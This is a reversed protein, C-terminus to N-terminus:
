VLRLRWAAGRPRHGGRRRKPVYFCRELRQAKWFPSESFGAHFRLFGPDAMVKGEFAM